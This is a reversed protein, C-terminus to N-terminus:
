AVLDRLHSADGLLTVSWDMDTNIRRRLRVGGSHPRIGRLEINSERITREVAPSERRRARDKREPNTTLYAHKTKSLVRRMDSQTPLTRGALRWPTLVAVPDPELLRRWISPEHASAAGHHPVKFATGRETPRAKSEVIRVWGSAELDAGLLIVVDAVRIWLVVSVNNPSVEPIRTKTEGEAPLLAAITKLFRVFESNHPSLSWIEYKDAKSIRCDAFVVKPHRGQENLTTLVRHIERAGSGGAFSSRGDLAHIAALFERQRLAAACCFEAKPCGDVLAAMGRIHDDHWHTAVVWDVAEAPNIDMGRLYDLAQPRGEDNICSDVIIWRGEGIHVVISEGYGPGLLTVEIEDEHPAAQVM